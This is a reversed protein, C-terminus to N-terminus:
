KEFTFLNVRVNARLSTKSCSLKPDVKILFFRSKQLHVSRPQLDKRPQASSIGSTVM